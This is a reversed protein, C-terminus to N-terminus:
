SRWTRTAAYRVNGARDYARAQVTLSRGFANTDIPFTHTPGAYRGILRGNVVVETRAVGRADSSTVGLRATGQVYALSAPGSLVQVSPATNDATVWRSVTRTNGARDYARLTLRANGDVGGTVWSLVWPYAHDTSVVRDDVLLQVKAVGGADTASATATMTGRVMASAAPTRFAVAPATNDVSVPLSFASVAAGGRYATFTLRVAGSLGATHVTPAFPAATDLGVQTGGATVRVRDVVGVSTGFAVRAVVDGRLVAGPAIGSERQPVAALAAAANVRGSSVWSVNTATATLWTRIQGATPQPTLARLLGAVGAVFPTASSTGCFWGVKGDRRQAVNCGPAAIDVWPGHNSWAYRSGTSTAAAVALVSPIGAPFQRTSVGDNGAAAVVLVGKGVAYAVADRLVRQDAPGGLSLNLVDAGHDVAWTIGAAITSYAGSGSRDLVKVPLIRCHPCVGAGAIGNDARAALTTAVQTGHGEDDAPNSDSNVFDHGRLVKGALDPVVTVGTDIVAVVVDTAGRTGAWAQTVGGQTLGWQSSRYPDVASMTAVHDVEVYAVDPDARLEAATEAVDTAPVDVTVADVGEVAEANEITDPAAGDKLGVVLSVPEPEPAAAAPVAPGLLLALVLVPVASGRM